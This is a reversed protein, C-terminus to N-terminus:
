WSHSETLEWLARHELARAALPERSGGGPQVSAALCTAAMAIVRSGSRASFPWMGNRGVGGGVGGESDQGSHCCLGSPGWRPTWKRFRWDAFVACGRPFRGPPQLCVCTSVQRTAATHSQPRLRRKGCSLSTRPSLGSAVSGGSHWSFLPGLPFLRCPGERAGHPHLATAPTVRATRGRRAQSRTSIPGKRAGPSDADRGPGWLHVQSRQSGLVSHDGAGTIHQRPLLIHLVSM